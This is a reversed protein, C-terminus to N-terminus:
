GERGHDHGDPANQEAEGRRIMTFAQDLLDFSPFPPRRSAAEQRLLAEARAACALHHLHVDVARRMALMAEPGETPARANDRRLFDEFSVRQAAAPTSRGDMIRHRIEEALFAEYCADFEEALRALREQGEPDLAECRERQDQPLAAQRDQRWTLPPLQRKGICIAMAQRYDQEARHAAVQLLYADRRTQWDRADRELFVRHHEEAALRAQERTLRSRPRRNIRAIEKRVLVRKRMRFDEEQREREHQEWDLLVEYQARQDPTLLAEQARRWPALLAQGELTAATVRQAAPGAAGQPPEWVVRWGPERSVRKPGRAKAPPPHRRAEDHWLLLRDLRERAEQRWLRM